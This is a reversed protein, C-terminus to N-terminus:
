PQEGTGLGKDGIGEQQKLWEQYKDAQRNHLWAWLMLGLLPVAAILMPMFIYM